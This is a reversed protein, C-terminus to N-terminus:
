GALEDALLAAAFSRWALEPDARLASLAAALAPLGAAEGALRDLGAALAERRAPGDLDDALASVARGDLELERHPDGGAALLLVARRAAGNREDEALGIGDAALEALPRSVDLGSAAAAELAVLLEDSM